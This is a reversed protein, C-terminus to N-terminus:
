TTVGAGALDPTVNLAGAAKNAGAELAGRIGSAAPQGAASPVGASGINGGLAGMAAGAGYSTLGTVIARELNQGAALSGLGSGIAGGLPGGVMFGGISGITPALKELEDFFAM